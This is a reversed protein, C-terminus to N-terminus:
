NNVIWVAKDVAMQIVKHGVRGILFDQVMSIGKRGIMITGWNNKNAIEVLGLARSLYNEDIYSNIQESNFGAKVLREVAKEMQSYIKKNKLTLREEEMSAPEDENFFSLSYNGQMLNLSRAIHQIQIKKDTTLFLKSALTICDESGQSGDYGIMINNIEPANNVLVLTTFTMKSVLRGSVSGLSIGQTNSLGKRGAFVAKYGNKAEDLIDKTIGNKRPQTKIHVKSEPFGNNTFAKKADSLAKAFLKNYNSIFNEIQEKNASNDPMSDIDWFSQPITTGVLFLVIESDEQPLIKSAYKVADMSYESGDIAILYKNNDM